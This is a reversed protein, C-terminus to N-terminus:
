GARFDLSGRREAFRWGDATAVLRDHYSGVLPPTPKQIPLGGDEAADAVFLLINSTATASLGDPAVDVVINCCVHRSARAPRSLFSALIAERGETFVDPATPRSMRGDEAYLAAVEHWLGADNLAAYRIILKACDHEIARTDLTM